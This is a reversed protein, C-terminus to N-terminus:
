RFRIPIRAIIRSRRAFASHKEFADALPLRGLTELAFVGLTLPPPPPPPLIM